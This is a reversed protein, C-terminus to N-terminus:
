RDVILPDDLRIVLRAGQAITAQGDRTALAVATGAAAGAVAGTVTAGRDKGLIRGLAAGAAAGVGVKVATRGDSDRTDAEMEVDVVTARLPRVAGDLTVSEIELTLVAPQESSPSEMSEVVRGRVRSGLPILVESQEGLIDETVTAWFTDGVKSEETSLATELALELTSGAPVARVPPAPEPAPAAPEAAAPAPAPDRRRPTPAPREAPRTPAVAPAEAAPEEPLPAEALPTGAPAEASPAEALPSVRISEDDGASEAERGCAGLALAVLIALGHLRRGGRMAM